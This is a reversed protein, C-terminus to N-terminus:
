RRPPATGGQAPGVVVVLEGKLKRGRLAAALEAASGRLIEEHLKTLERCLVVPRGPDLEALAAVTEGVRQPSDFGVTTQPSALLRAAATPRRPLFGVFLFPEPPLAAVVLATTVASPGPLAEVAVGREVCARVLKFGPDSVLPTGADSTLAIQAGAELRGLLRGLRASENADYFSILQPKRIGHHALLRATRRTDECAIAEVEGLVRLARLTIDELNGIPTPCLYLRGASV